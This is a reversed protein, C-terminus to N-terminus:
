MSEKCCDKLTNTQIVDKVKCNTFYIFNTYHKDHKVYGHILNQLLLPNKCVDCNSLVRQVKDGEIFINQGQLKVIGELHLKQMSRM